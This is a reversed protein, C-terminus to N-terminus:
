YILNIASFLIRKVAFADEYLIGVKDDSLKVLSSYDSKNETLQYQKRWSNGSDKSIFISMKERSKSHNPTSFALITQNSDTCGLKILSAEVWPDTPMVIGEMTQWKSWKDGKGNSISYVRNNPEKKSVSFKTNTFGPRDNRMLNGNCLEVITAESGGHRMKSVSWTKGYDNSILNKGSAPFILRGDKTMIGNGPGVMDVRDRLNSPITIQKAKSWTKGGNSSYSHWFKRDGVKMRQSSLVQKGSACQSKLHTNFILHINNKTYLVTPNTYADKTGIETSINANGVVISESSWHIGNDNSTKMVIDIEGSDGCNLNTGRHRKESFAYLRTPKDSVDAVIAPIRYHYNSDSEYVIVNNNAYASLSTISLIGTFLLHYIKSTLM